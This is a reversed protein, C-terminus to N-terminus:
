LGGRGSKDVVRGIVAVTHMENPPVIEDPYIDKNPNDSVIRLGGDRQNFLRKVKAEGGIAIAYVKSDRIRTDALNILVRDGDFLLNEMSDGTVRMLKCDAPKLRERQFWRMQYVMTYRTEVFEPVIVGNGASLLIDVEGVLVDTDPDLEDPSDVARVDYAYVKVRQPETAPAHKDGKGTALWQVSVGLAAAITHLKTSTKMGGRELEALTSYGIKTMASLQKRDIGQAQREQKIREGITEM